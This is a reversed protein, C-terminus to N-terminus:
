EVRRQQHGAGYKNFLYISDIIEGYIDLQLQDVAANGIRVPKSDRYGRLHDLETEEDPENGDIDYLVRLPGLGHNERAGRGLRESLWRSSRARRTPSAWGCCRM